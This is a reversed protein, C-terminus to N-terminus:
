YLLWEHINHIHIQIFNNNSQRFYLSSQNMHFEWKLYKIVHTIASCSYQNSHSCDHKCILRRIPWLTMLCVVYQNKSCFFHGLLFYIYHFGHLTKIVRLFMKINSASSVPRNQQSRTLCKTLNSLRRLPHMVKEMSSQQMCLLFIGCFEWPGGEVNHLLRIYFM